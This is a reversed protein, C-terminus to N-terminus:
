RRHPQPRDLEALWNQNCSAELLDAYQRIPPALGATFRSSLQIPQEQSAKHALQQARFVRLEAQLREVQLQLQHKEELLEEVKTESDALLSQSARRERHLEQLATELSKNADALRSGQKNNDWLHSVLNHVNGVHKQTDRQGEGLQRVAQFVTDQQSTCKRISNHVAQFASPLNGVRKNMTEAHKELFEKLSSHEAQLLELKKELSLDSFVSGITIKVPLM